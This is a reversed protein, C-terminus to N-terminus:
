SFAALPSVSYGNTQLTLHLPVQKHRDRQVAEIQAQLQRRYNMTAEMKADRECDKWLAMTQMHRVASMYEEDQQQKNSALHDQKDASM